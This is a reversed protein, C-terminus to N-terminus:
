YADTNQTVTPDFIWLDDARSTSGGTTVYGKNGIAFGQAYQRDAGEFV